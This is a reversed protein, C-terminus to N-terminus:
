VLSVVLLSVALIYSVFRWYIPVQILMLHAVKAAALVLLAIMFTTINSIFYGLGFVQSVIGQINLFLLLLSAGSMAFWFRIPSRLMVYTILFYCSMIMVAGGIVGIFGQQLQQNENFDKQRWLDLSLVLPGDDVIRIYLNLDQFPSVELPLVFKRHNIPRKSNERKAGVQYSNIIRSKDDLVYVDIVDITPNGIIIAYDEPLNLESSVNFHAWLSENEQLPEVSASQSWHNNNQIESLQLTSDVRQYRMYDLLEVHYFDRDLQITAPQANNGVSQLSFLSCLLFLFYRM